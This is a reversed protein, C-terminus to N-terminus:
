SLMQEALFDFLIWSALRKGRGERREVGVDSQLAFEGYRPNTVEGVVQQISGARRFCNTIKSEVEEEKRRLWGKEEENNIARNARRGLQLTIWNLQMCLTHTARENTLQRGRM